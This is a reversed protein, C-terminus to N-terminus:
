QRSLKVFNSHKKRHTKYWFPFFNQKLHWDSKMGRVVLLLSLCSPLFVSYPRKSLIKSIHNIRFYSICSWFDKTMVSNTADDSIDENAEQEACDIIRKQFWGDFYIRLSGRFHLIMRIKLLDNYTNMM